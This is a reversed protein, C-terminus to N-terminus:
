LLERSPRMIGTNWAVESFFKHDHSSSSRISSHIPLHVPLQMSSNRKKWGRWAEQSAGTKEKSSPQKREHKAGTQTAQSPQM